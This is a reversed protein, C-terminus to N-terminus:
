DRSWMRISFVPNAWFGNDTYVSYPDKHVVWGTIIKFVLFKTEKRFVGYEKQQEPTLLALYNPVEKGDISWIFGHFVNRVSLWYWSAIFWGFREEINFVTPEYRGMLHIDLDDPTALWSLLRPVKYYIGKEEVVKTPFLLAFPVIVWAIFRMLFQILTVLFLKM